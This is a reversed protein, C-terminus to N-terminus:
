RDLDYICNSWLRQNRIILRPTDGKEAYKNIENLIDEIKKLVDKRADSQEQLVADRSKDLIKKKELNLLLTM